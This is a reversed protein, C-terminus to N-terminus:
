LDEDLLRSYSGPYLNDDRLGEDLLKNRETIKTQLQRMPFGFLKEPLRTPNDILNGKALPSVDRIMRGFPLM